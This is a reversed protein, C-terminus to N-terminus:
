LSQEAIGACSLGVARANVWGAFCWGREELARGGERIPFSAKVSCACSGLM